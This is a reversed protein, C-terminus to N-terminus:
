FVPVLGVFLNRGEVKDFFARIAQTKTTFQASDFNCPEKLDPSSIIAFIRNTLKEKTTCAFIDRALGKDSVDFSVDCFWVTTLSDAKEDEFATWFEDNNRVSEGEEIEELEELEKPLTSFDVVGEDVDEIKKTESAM